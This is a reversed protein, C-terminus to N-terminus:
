ESIRPITSELWPRKLRPKPLKAVPKGRLGILDQAMEPTAAVDPQMDDGGIVPWLM